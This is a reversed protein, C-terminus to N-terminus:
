VGFHETFNPKENVFHWVNWIQFRQTSHIRYLNRSNTKLLSSFSFKNTTLQHFNKSLQCSTLAKSIKSAWSTGTPQNSCLLSFYGNLFSQNFNDRLIKPVAFRTRIPTFNRPTSAFCLQFIAHCFFSKTFLLTRTFAIIYSAHIHVRPLDFYDVWFRFANPSERRDLSADWLLSAKLRESMTFSVEELTRKGERKRREKEKVKEEKKREREREAKANKLGQVKCHM